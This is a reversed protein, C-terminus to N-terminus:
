KSAGKPLGFFRPGSWHAGTIRKAIASLSRYTHGQWRYGSEVVDVAHSVGNWSRVLRTGVAAKSSRAETREVSAAALAKTTAKSLGGLEAAQLDFALMRRMLPLSLGKPPPAEYFETWWAVVDTRGLTALTAVRDEIM